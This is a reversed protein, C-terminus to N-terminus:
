WSWPNISWVHSPLARAIMDVSGGVPLAVIIKVPQDPYKTQAGIPVSLTAAAITLSALVTRRHIAM